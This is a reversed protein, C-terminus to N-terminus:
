EITSDEEVFLKKLKMEGSSNYLKHLILSKNSDLLNTLKPSPYDIRATAYEMDSEEGVIKFVKNDKEFQAIDIECYTKHIFDTVYNDIEIEATFYDGNPLILRYTGSKNKHVLIQCKKITIKKIM